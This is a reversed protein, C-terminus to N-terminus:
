LRGYEDVYKVLAIIGKEYIGSPSAPRKGMKPFKLKGRDPPKRHQRTRFFSRYDTVSVAYESGIEEPISSEIIIWPLGTEPHKEVRKYTRLEEKGLNKSSLRGFWSVSKRDAIMAMHSFLYRALGAPNKADGKNHYTWGPCLEEFLSAEIARGFAITHFHPSFYYYQLPNKQKRIHDYIKWAPDEDTLNGAIKAEMTILHKARKGQTQTDPHQLRSDHYVTLGGILGSIRLGEMYEERAIDLFIGQDFQGNCMQKVRFVLEVQHAPTMTFIFQRPIVGPKEGAVLVANEALKAREYMDFRDEVDGAKDTLTGPM